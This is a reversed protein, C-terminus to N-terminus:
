PEASALDVTATLVFNAIAQIDSRLIRDCAVGTAADDSILASILRDEAAYPHEAVAIRWVEIRPATTQLDGEVLIVDCDAFQAEFRSYRQERDVAAVSSGDGNPERIAPIFLATM